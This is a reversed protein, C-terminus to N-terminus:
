PTIQGIKSLEPPLFDMKMSQPHHTGVRTPHPHLLSKGIYSPSPKSEIKETTSCASLKSLSIPPNNKNIRMIAYTTIKSVFYM